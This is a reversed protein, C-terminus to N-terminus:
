KRPPAAPTPTPPTQLPFKAVFCNTKRGATSIGGPNPAASTDLTPYRCKTQAGQCRATAQAGGRDSWDKVLCYHLLFDYDQSSQPPVYLYYQDVAREDDDTQAISMVTSKDFKLGIHWKETGDAKRGYIYVLDNPNASDTNVEWLVARAVPRPGSGDGFDWRVLPNVVGTLRGWDVYVRSQIRSSTLDLLDYLDREGSIEDIAAVDKNFTESRDVFHPLEKKGLVISEPEGELSCVTMTGKSGAPACNIGKTESSVVDKGHWFKLYPRHPHEIPYSNVNDIKSVNPFVVM